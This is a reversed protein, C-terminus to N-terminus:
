GFYPDFTPETWESLHNGANGTDTSYMLGKLITGNLRYNSGTVKGYVYYVGGSGSEFYVTGALPNSNADIGTYAVGVNNMQQAYTILNDPVLYRYQGSIIQNIVLGEFWIKFSNDSLKKRVVLTKDTNYVWEYNIEPQLNSILIKRTGNTQGDILVYSDNTYDEATPANIIRQEAM